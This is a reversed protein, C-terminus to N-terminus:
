LTKLILQTTPNLIGEEDSGMISLAKFIENEIDNINRLGFMSVYIADSEGVEPLLINKWLYTKGCGWDGDIMIAYKADPTEIYTKVAKIIDTTADMTECHNKCSSIPPKIRKASDFVRSFANIM